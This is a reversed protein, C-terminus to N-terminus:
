RDGSRHVMTAASIGERDNKEEMKRRRDRIVAIIISVVIMVVTMGELIAVATWGDMAQGEPRLVKRM